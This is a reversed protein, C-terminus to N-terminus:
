KSTKLMLQGERDSQVLSSGGLKDSGVGNNRKRMWVAKTRGNKKYHLREDTM